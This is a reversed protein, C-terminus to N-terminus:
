RAAIADIEILAGGPLDKVAFAKRAPPDVPFYEMYIQNMENFFSIDTLLVTCAVVDTMSYGSAEIVRKLNELVQRTEAALGGEALKGTGPVMGIQGSVYLTNNIEVAPSYPRKQATDDLTIVRREGGTVSTEEGPQQCSAMMLTVAMLMLLIRNM